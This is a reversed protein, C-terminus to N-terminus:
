SFKFLYAYKRMQLRLIQEVRRLVLPDYYEAFAEMRRIVDNADFFFHIQQGYLEESADLQEDFDRSFPKAEICEMCAEVKREMPFDQMTDSLLALGHDFYYCPRYRDTEAQYLVAINNMHRDENLFFADIELMATLYKGFDRIGTINEVIKVLWEIKDRVEPIQALKRALSKGTYQRYLHELTILNENEALFDRSRCGNYSQTGCVIRVMEYKVFDTLNSYELCYSVVCEALAEYGMYDAKYWYGGERVKLQNGKSSHGDMKLQYLQDFTIERM